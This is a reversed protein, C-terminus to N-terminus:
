PARLTRKCSAREPPRLAWLVCLCGSRLTFSNTSRLPTSGRVEATCLRREGLQALPGRPPLIGRSDPLGGFVMLDRANPNRSPQLVRRWSLRALIGLPRPGHPSGQRAAPDADARWSRRGSRERGGQREDSGRLRIWMVLRIALALVGVTVIVLVAVKPALALAIVVAALATVALVSWLLMRSM